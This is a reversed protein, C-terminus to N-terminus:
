FFDSLSGMCGADYNTNWPIWGHILRDRDSVEQCTARKSHTSPTSSPQAGSSNFPLGLELAHFHELLYGALERTLVFDAIIFSRGPGAPGGGRKGNTPHLYAIDASLGYAAALAGAARLVAGHASEQWNKGMINKAVITFGTNAHVASFFSWCTKSWINTSMGMIKRAHSAVNTAIERSNSFSDVFAGGPQLASVLVLSIIWRRIKADWFIAVYNNMGRYPGVARREIAGPGAAATQVKAGTAAEWATTYRSDSLLSTLDTALDDPVHLAPPESNASPATWAATALTLLVVGAAVFRSFCRM